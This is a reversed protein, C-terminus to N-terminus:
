YGKMNRWTIALNCHKSTGKSLKLQGYAYDLDLKAIWLLENAALKIETSIQTILKEMNSMYPTM